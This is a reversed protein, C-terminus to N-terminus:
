RVIIGDGIKIGTGITRLAPPGAKATEIKSFFYFGIGAITLALLALFIIKKAKKTIKNKLIQEM